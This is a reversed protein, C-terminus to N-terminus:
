TFGKWDFKSGLHVYHSSLKFSNSKRALVSLQGTELNICPAFSFLIKLIYEKGTTYECTKRAEVNERKVM